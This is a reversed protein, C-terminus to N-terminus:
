ANSLDIMDAWNNKSLEVQCMQVKFMKLSPLMIDKNSIKM